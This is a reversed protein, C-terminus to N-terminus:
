FLYGISVNFQDQGTEAENTRWQQDAKVVVQPDPFLAAGATVVTRDNAPNAAYGAPVGDQTDYREYRVYPVVTWESGPSFLRLVDYGAEGYWGFLRSGVSANSGPAVGNRENFREAEDITGRAYLARVSLGHGKYEGHAEWLQTRGTFSNGAATTDGQAAGGTFGSVGARFGGHAYELLGTLGWDEVRSFSGSQRAERVGDGATFGRISQSANAVGRFGEVLYARYSFGSNSEGFVGVGNTRWTSPLIRQEVDPRRAGLYTPPEHLENIFGMPPLLMGARVNIEPRVLYDLYAFEVSVTGRKGTTAHEFELESNFVIRDSFKYGVYTIARLFDLQDPNFQAVGDEREAAFNEYLMEGYGGVSVGQKVGYVKSAAPGMGHRSERAPAAVEGLKLDDLEGSLVQIRRELEANSPAAAAAAGADQAPARAAALLAVTPGLREIRVGGTATADDVLLVAELDGAQPVFARAAEPGMVYLATSAADADVGREAIAAAAGWDAAPAGTRPDLVHNLMRGDVPLARESASTTAVSRDKLAITTVGRARDRPDALTVSWAEAGVPAGIASVQGGFNLLARTVGRVRLVAVARDLAEGKAIGGLDFAMGARPLRVTRAAADLEVTGGAVLVRAADLAAADPFRGEGRLDYARTLPEVTADFAGHTRLTWRRAAELMTFLGASIPTVTGSAANVRAIESDDRWNSAEDECRAIAAFAATAAADLAEQGEGQLVLTCRTGMLVQEREVTLSANAGALSPALSVFAPILTVVLTALRRGLPRRPSSM